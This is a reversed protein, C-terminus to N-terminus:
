RKAAPAVTLWLLLAALGALAAGFFFPVSPNFTQWLAGAILSAPFATIGVATHYLGYASGRREAPVLDSVLARAVGETAAYYVGYALFLFVVQWAAGALAFGLYILAYAVWGGLIVRRRGIRDSLIGLPVSLSAYVLNFAALLLLIYVLPLGLNQARLILFADSSNGLTFLMMIGLFLKFSVPFPSVARTAPGAKGPLAAPRTEHVLFWLVLMALIAPVTGVLVITRFADERLDLGGHQVLLVVLAAGLLGVVAGATDMARHLGFSRGREAPLTSDALLADRPATRVGKGVRDTFRLLLLLGWSTALYFFPKALTSLGYGALTLEKRRRLRDSLWGSPFRMLAATSDAIGEIFGIIATGVGLVNALFLPLITVIMESSVDTLFSVWGLFFVNRSVGFYRRSPTSSPTTQEM